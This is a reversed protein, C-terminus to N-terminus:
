VEGARRYLRTTMQRSIQLLKGVDTLSMREEDVLSRIIRGRFRTVAQEYGAFREATKRRLGPGGSALLEQLIASVPEGRERADRAPALASIATELAGCAEKANREIDDIAALLWDM